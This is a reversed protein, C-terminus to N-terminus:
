KDRDNPGGPAAYRPEPPIFRPPPPPASRATSSGLPSENIFVKKRIPVMDPDDPHAPTGPGMYEWSERMELEPSNYDPLDYSSLSEDRFDVVITGPYDYLGRAFHDYAVGPAVGTLADLMAWRNAKLSFVAAVNRNGEAQCRVSLDHPQRM